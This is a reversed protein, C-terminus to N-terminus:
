IVFYPVTFYFIIQTHVFCNKVDDFFSPKLSELDDQRKLKDILLCMMMQHDMNLTGVMNRGLETNRTGDSRGHESM